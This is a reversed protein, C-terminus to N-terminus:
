TTSVLDRAWAPVDPTTPEPRFTTPNAMWELTREICWPWTGYSAAFRPPPPPMPESDWDPGEWGKM